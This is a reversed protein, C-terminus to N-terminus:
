GVRISDDTLTSRVKEVQDLFFNCKGIVSYLSAYISEIESNTSYIKWLWHNGLTNSYGDIAYVLDSQIDPCLTLYGSYLAGSMFSSYIGTLTQEADNFTKMADEELIYDGPLKELCANLNFAVLLMAVSKAIINFTKKMIM